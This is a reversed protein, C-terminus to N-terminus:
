WFLWFSECQKDVTCIEAPLSQTALPELKIGGWDLDFQGLRFDDAQHRVLHV